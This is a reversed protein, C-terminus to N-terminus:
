PQYVCSFYVQYTLTAPGAATLFIGCWPLVMMNASGDLNPPAGGNTAPQTAYDSTNLANLNRFNLGRTNIDNADNSTFGFRLKVDINGATYEVIRVGYTGFRGTRPLRVQARASNAVAVAALTEAFITSWPYYNEPRGSM